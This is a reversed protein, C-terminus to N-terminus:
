TRSTVIGSRSDGELVTEAQNVFDQYQELRQELRRLAKREAPLVRVDADWVWQLDKPRYDLLWLLQHIGVFYEKFWGGDGIRYSNSRCQLIGMDALWRRAVKPNGRCLRKMRAAEIAMTGRRCPETNQVALPWLLECCIRKVSPVDPCGLDVLRDRCAMQPHDAPVVPLDQMRPLVNVPVCKQVKLSHWDRLMDEVAAVGTCGICAPNISVVQLWQEAMQEDSWNRLRAVTFLSHHLVRRYHRAPIGDRSLQEWQHLDSLWQGHNIVPRDGSSRRIVMSQNSISQSITASVESIPVESGVSTSLTTSLSTTLITCSPVLSSSRNDKTDDNQPVVLRALGSSRHYFGPCRVARSPDHAVTPDYRYGEAQVIAEIEAVVRLYEENNCKPRERNRKVEAIEKYNTIVDPNRVPKPLPWWCHLSKGGSWVAFPISDKHNTLFRLQRELASEIVVWRTEYVCCQAKWNSTLTSPCVFIEYGLRNWETLKNFTDNFRRSGLHTSFCWGANIEYHGTAKSHYWLERGHLVRPLAQRKPDPDPGDRDGEPRKDHWMPFFYIKQGPYYALELFAKCDSLPDDAITPFNPHLGAGPCPEVASSITSCIPQGATDMKM